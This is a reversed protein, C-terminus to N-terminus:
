DSNEFILIAKGLPSLVPIWAEECEEIRTKDLKLFQRQDDEDQYYHTNWCPIKSIILSLQEVQKEKWCVPTWGTTEKAFFKNLEKEVDKMGLPVLYGESYLEVCANGASQNGYFVGTDKEVILCLGIDQTGDPNLFIYTDSEKM